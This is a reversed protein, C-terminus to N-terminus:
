EASLSMLWTMMTQLDEDSGKFPMAHKKNNLSEEKKMYKVWFELDKGETIKSLDPNKDSKKKAEIGAAEIGHCANCKSEEFITKGDKGEAQAFNVLSIGLVGLMVIFAVSLKLLKLVNGGFFTLLFIDPM